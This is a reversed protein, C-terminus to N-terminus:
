LSGQSTTKPKQTPLASSSTTHTFSEAFRLEDADVGHNPEGCIIPSPRDQFCFLEPVPATSVHSSLSLDIAVLLPGSTRWSSLHRPLNFDMKGFDTRSVESDTFVDLGVAGIM